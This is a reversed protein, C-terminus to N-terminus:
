ENENNTIFLGVGVIIIGVFPTVKGIFLSFDSETFGILMVKRAIGFLILAIGFLMIKYDKM